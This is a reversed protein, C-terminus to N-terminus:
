HNGAYIFFGTVCLLVYAIFTNPVYASAAIAIASMGYVFALHKKRDGRRDSSRSIVITGLVDLLPPVACLFGVQIDNLDGLSKIIQPLWLRRIFRPSRIVRNRNRMRSRSVLYAADNSATKAESFTSM